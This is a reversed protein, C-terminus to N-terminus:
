QISIKRAKAVPTPHEKPLNITLVGNAYKATIDQTKVNDPLPIVRVFSGYGREIHRFGRQDVEKKEEKREGSVTLSDDKVQLDIRDKEMGPLDMRVTYANESEEFDYLPGSRGAGPMTGAFGASMEQQFLRDLDSQIRRFEEFPDSFGAASIDANSVQDRAGTNQQVPVNQAQQAQDASSPRPWATLALVFFVAYLNQILSRNNKM